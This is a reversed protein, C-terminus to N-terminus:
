KSCAIPLPRSETTSTRSSVSIVYSSQIWSHKSSPLLKWCALVAGCEAYFGHGTIMWDAMSPTFYSAAFDPRFLSTLFCRLLSPPIHFSSILSPFNSVRLEFPRMLPSAREGRRAPSEVVIARDQQTDRTGAPEPKAVIRDASPGPPSGNAIRELRRVAVIHAQRRSAVHRKGCRRFPATKSLAQAATYLPNPCTHVCPAPGDVFPM